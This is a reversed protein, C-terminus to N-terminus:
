VLFRFTFNYIYIDQYAIHVLLYFIIVFMQGYCIVIINEYLITIPIIILCFYEYFVRKFNNRTIIFLWLM